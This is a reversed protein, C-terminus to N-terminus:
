GGSRAADTAAQIAQLNRIADDRGRPGVGPAANCPEIAPGPVRIAVEFQKLKLELADTTLSRM